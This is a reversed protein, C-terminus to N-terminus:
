PSSYYQPLVVGLEARLQGVKGQEQGSLEMGCDVIVCLVVKLLVADDTFRDGPRRNLKQCRGPQRWQRDEFQVQSLHVM